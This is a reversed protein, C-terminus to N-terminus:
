KLTKQMGINITELMLGNRSIIPLREQVFVEMVLYTTLLFQDRRIQCRSSHGGCHPLEDM